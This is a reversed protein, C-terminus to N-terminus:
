YMRVDNFLIVRLSFVVLLFVITCVFLNYFLNKIPIWRSVEKSNWLVATEDVLGAFSSESGCFDSIFRGVIVEFFHSTGYPFAQRLFLINHATGIFICSLMNARFTGWQVDRKKQKHLPLGSIYRGALSGVNCWIMSVIFEFWMTKYAHNSVSSPVLRWDYISIITVLAANILPFLGLLLMIIVHRGQLHKSTHRKRKIMQQHLHKQLKQDHTTV